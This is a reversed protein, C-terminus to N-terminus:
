GPLTLAFGRQTHLYTRTLLSHAQHSHTAIPACAHAEVHMHETDTCRACFGVEPVFSGDVVLSKEGRWASGVFNGILAKWGMCSYRIESDGCMTPTLWVAVYLLRSTAHARTTTRVRQLPSNEFHPFAVTLFQLLRSDKM